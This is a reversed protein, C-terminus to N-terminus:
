EFPIIIIKYGQEPLFWAKVAKLLAIRATETVEKSKKMESICSTGKPRAVVREVKNMHVTSEIIRQGDWQNTVPVLYEKGDHAFVLAKERTPQGLYAAGVLHAEVAKGRVSSGTTKLGGEQEQKKM